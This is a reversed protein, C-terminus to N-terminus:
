SATQEIGRNMGGYRFSEQLQRLATAFPPLQTNASSPSTTGSEWRRWWPNQALSNRGSWQILGLSLERQEVAAPGLASKQLIGTNPGPLSLPLESFELGSVRM